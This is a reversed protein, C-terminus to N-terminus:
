HRSDKQGERWVHIFQLKRTQPMGLALFGEHKGHSTESGLRDM